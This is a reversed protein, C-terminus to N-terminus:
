APQGVLSKTNSGQTSASTYLPSTINTSQSQTPIQPPLNSARVQGAGIELFFQTCVYAHRAESQCTSFRCWGMESALRFTQKSFGALLGRKRGMLLTPWFQIYVGYIVTYKIIDWGFIGYICRIYLHNQGVRGM